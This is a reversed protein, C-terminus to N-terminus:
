LTRRALVGGTVLLWLVLGTGFLRLGHLSNV